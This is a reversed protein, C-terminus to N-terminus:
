RSDPARLETLRTEIFVADAGDMWLRGGTREALNRAFTLVTEPPPPTDSDPPPFTVRVVASKAGLAHLDIHITSGEPARRLAALVVSKLVLEFGISDAMVIPLSSDVQITVSAESAEERLDRRVAMAVDRLSVEQRVFESPLAVGEGLERGIMSDLAVANRAVMAQYRPNNRQEMSLQEDMMLALANQITGLPNRLDHRIGRLQTRLASTYAYTFGKASALSFLSFSRHLRRALAIGDAATSPGAYDGAARECAFLSMAVLLDVEKLMSHLTVGAEHAASGFEWGERMIEDQWCGTDRLCLGLSQVVRAADASDLLASQDAARPAVHRAQQQWREGIQEAESSVALAVFHELSAESYTTPSEM